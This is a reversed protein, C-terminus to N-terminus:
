FMADELAFVEEQFNHGEQLCIIYCKDKQMRQLNSRQVKRRTFTPASPPSPHSILRKEMCMDMVLIDRQSCLTVDLSPTEEGKQPKFMLAMLPSQIFHKSDEWPGGDWKPDWLVKNEVDKKLGVFLLKVM